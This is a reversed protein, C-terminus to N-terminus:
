GRFVTKPVNRYLAGLAGRKAGIHVSPAFSVFMSLHPRNESYTVSGDKKPTAVGTNHSNAIEVPPIELTGCGAAYPDVGKDCQPTLHQQPSEPSM